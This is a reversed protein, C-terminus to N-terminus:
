ASLVAEWVHSVTVRERVTLASTDCQGKKIKQVLEIGSVTMAANRFKKFGLM